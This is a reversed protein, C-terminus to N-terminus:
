QAAVTFRAKRASVPLPCASSGNLCDGVQSDPSFAFVWLERAGPLGDIRATDALTIPQDPAVRASRGLPFLERAGSPAVELVVLSAERSSAVTANLPANPSFTTGGPFQVTLGVEPTSAFFDNLQARVSDSVIGPKGPSPVDRAAPIIKEDRAPSLRGQLFMVGVLALCAVAGAGVWMVVKKDFWSFWGAREPEESALKLVFDRHASDKLLERLEHEEGVAEFLEQDEAAALFLEREEAPTLERLAFRALQIEQKETM